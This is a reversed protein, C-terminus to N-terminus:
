LKLIEKFANCQQEYRNPLIRLKRLWYYLVNYDMTQKWVWSPLVLIRCVLETIHWLEKSCPYRENCKPEFFTKRRKKDKQQNKMVFRFDENANKRKTESYQGNFIANAYFSSEDESSNSYQAVLKYSFSLVNFIIQDPMKM